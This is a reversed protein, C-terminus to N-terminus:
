DNIALSWNQAKSNVGLKQKAEGSNVKVVIGNCHKTFILVKGCAIIRM